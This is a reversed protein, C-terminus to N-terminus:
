LELQPLADGAKRKASDIVKGYIQTTAIKKHGLLKSVTYLDAGQTLSLTAFTHRALHFHLHKEFKAQKEWKGLIYRCQRKNTTKFVKASPPCNVTDGILALATKNLPVYHWTKTKTRIFKVTDGEIQEYTLTHLNAISLGTFCGFLFMRAVEKHSEKEPITESLKKIEEFTLFKRETEELKINTVNDCPNRLIIRDRVARKLASRVKGFHGSATNASINKLLYNQFGELWLENINKFPVAGGSFKKLHILVSKWILASRGKSEGIKQFYEVFDANRKFSPIIDHDAFELESERNARITEALILKERNAEKIRKSLLVMERNNESKVKIENLLILRLFDYHRQGNHYIDLYLSKKGNALKKKRLKVSMGGKHIKKNAKLKNKNIM